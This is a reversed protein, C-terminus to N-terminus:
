KTLAESTDSDVNPLSNGPRVVGLRSPGMEENMSEIGGDAVERRSDEFFADKQYAIM